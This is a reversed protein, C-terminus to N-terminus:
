LYTPRRRTKHKASIFITTILLLVPLTFVIISYEPITTTVTYSGLNEDTVQNGAVDFATIEYTVTTGEEQRPITTKYVLNEHDYTMMVVIWTKKEDITYRLTVEQIDFLSIVHASVTVNQASTPLAPSQETNLIRLAYNTLREVYLDYLVSSATTARYINIWYKGTQGCRWITTGTAFPGYRQTSNYIEIRLDEVGAITVAYYYNVDCTVQYTDNDRNGGIGIVTGYDTILRNTATSTATPYGLYTKYACITYSGYGSDRRVMVYYTGTPYSWNMCDISVTQGSLADTASIIQGSANMLILEFNASSPLQPLEIDYSYGNELYIRYYDGTDNKVISQVYRTGSPSPTGFDLRALRLSYLGYGSRKTVRLYYYGSPVSAWGIDMSLQEGNNAITELLITGNITILQLGFNASSPPILDIDIPYGESIFVRWLDGEEKHLIEQNVTTQSASGLDPRTIRLTYPGSGKEKKVLIIAIGSPQMWIFDLSVSEGASSNTTLSKTSTYVVIEFDATSPKNFLDIDYSYGQFLSATWLDFGEISVLRNQVTSSGPTGLDNRTCYLQYPGFGSIRQVVIYCYGTDNFVINASIETGYGIPTQVLGSGNASILQIQLGLTKPYQTLDVDYACPSYDFRLIDSSDNQLIQDQFVISGPSGLHLRKASVFYSGSGTERKIRIYYIGTSATWVLDLSVDQGSPSNTSNYVAGNKDILQIKFAATTPYNWLNIDYPMNQQLSIRYIDSSDDNNLISQRISTGTDTLYMNRFIMRYSGTGWKKAVFIYYVGDTYNWIFDLTIEAGSVSAKSATFLIRETNDTVNIAFNAAIDIGTLEIEYAYDQRMYVGYIDGRDNECISESQYSSLEYFQNPSPDSLRLNWTKLIYSGLGAQKWVIIYYVGTPLQWIIDLSRDKGASTNTFNLTRGTIDNLRIEFDSEASLGSLEIDYAYGINFYVRFADMADSSLLLDERTTPTLPTGIDMSAIRLKYPGFGSQRNVKLYYTGTTINWVVSLSRDQGLSASTSYLISGLNSLVQIEFDGYLGTLDIDYAYANQLYVRYIDGTDNTLIIQNSPSESTGPTGFDNKWITMQYPGTGTEKRVAVYYRGTDLTWIQDLSVGDGMPSTSNYLMNSYQDTIGLEFGSYDSVGALDIDYSYERELYVCYLDYVDNSIIKQNAPSNSGATSPTGIYLDSVTLSYGGFGSQRYVIVYYRGDERVWPLDLSRSQGSSASTNVPIMSSEYDFIQLEFDATLPIDYLDIDYSHLLALQVSYIDKADKSVIRKYLPSSAGSYSPILQQLYVRLVYPSDAKPDGSNKFVWIFYTGDYGDWVFNLSSDEGNASNTVLTVNKEPLTRAKMVNGYQDTIKIEFDVTKSYNLLEIDYASYRQLFVSYQDGNYKEYQLLNELPDSTTGAISPTGITTDFVNLLYSSNGSESRVMIIWNGGQSCIIDLSVDVGQTEPNHQTYDVLINSPTFISLEFDATTSANLDLDIDYTKGLTLSLTYNKAQGDSLSDTWSRYVDLESAVKVVSNQYSAAELLLETSDSEVSDESVLAVQDRPSDTRLGSPQLFSQSQASALDATDDNSMGVSLSSNHWFSGKGDIQFTLVSSISFILLVVILKNIVRM